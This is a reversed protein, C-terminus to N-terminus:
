SKYSLTLTFFFNNDSGGRGSFTQSPFFIFAKLVYEITRGGFIPTAKKKRTLREKSSNLGSEADIDEYDDEERRRYCCSCLFVGFILALASAVSGLVVAM